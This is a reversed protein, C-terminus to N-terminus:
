SCLDGYDRERYYYGIKNVRLFLYIVRVNEITYYKSSVVYYIVFQYVLSGFYEDDFFFFM